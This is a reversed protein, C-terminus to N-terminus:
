TEKVVVILEDEAVMGLVSTMLTTVKYSGDVGGSAFLTAIYGAVTPMAIAINTLPNTPGTTPVVTASVSAISDGDRGAFLVSYDIDYYWAERPQKTAKGLKM